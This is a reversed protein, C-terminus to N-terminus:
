ENKDAGVIIVFDIDKETIKEGTTIPFISADLDQALNQATPRAQDQVNTIITSQYDRSSASRQTITIDSRDNLKKLIDPNITDSKSGNLLLVKYKSPSPSIPSISPIPSIPQISSSVSPNLRIAAIDIIKDLAPDYLIVKESYILLKDGNKAEKLFPQDKQLIEVNSITILKPDGLPMIMHRAIKNITNKIEEASATPAPQNISGPLSNLKSQADSYLKLSYVLAGILIISIVITIGVIFEINIKTTTQNNM